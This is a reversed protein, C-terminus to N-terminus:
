LYKFDKIVWRNFLIKQRIGYIIVLSYSQTWNEIYEVLANNWLYKTVIFHLYIHLTKIKLLLGVIIYAITDPWNETFIVIKEKVLTKRYRLSVTVM